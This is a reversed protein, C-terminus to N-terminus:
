DFFVENEAVIDGALISAFLILIAPIIFNADLPSILFIFVIMIAATIIYLYLAVWITKFLTYGAFILLIGIILLIIGYITPSWAILPTFGQVWSEFDFLPVEIELYVLVGVIIVVIGLLMQVLSLYKFITPPKEWNGGERFFYEQEALIDGIMFAIVALIIKTGTFDPFVFLILAMALAYIALFIFFAYSLTKYLGFGVALTVLGLIIMVAAFNTKDNLPEMLDQHITSIDFIELLGFIIILLGLMFTAVSIYKITTPTDSKPPTSTM